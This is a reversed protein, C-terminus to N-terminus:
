YTFLINGTAEKATFIGYLVYFYAIIFCLYAGVSVILASLIIIIIIFVEM